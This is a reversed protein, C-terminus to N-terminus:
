AYQKWLGNCKEFDEKCLKTFKNSQIDEVLTWVYKKDQPTVITESRDKQLGCWDDIRNYLQLLKHEISNRRVARKAPKKKTVRKAATKKTPKM